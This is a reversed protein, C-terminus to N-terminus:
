FFGPVCLKQGESDGRSLALLSAGNRYRFLAIVRAIVSDHLFNIGAARRGLGGELGTADDGQWISIRILPM